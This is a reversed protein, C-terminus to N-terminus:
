PWPRPDIVCPPRRTSTLRGRIRVVLQDAASEVVQAQRHDHEVAQLDDIARVCARDIARV